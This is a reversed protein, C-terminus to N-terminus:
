LKILSDIYVDESSSATFKFQSMEVSSAGAPITQSAPTDSAVSISLAGSADVDDSTDDSSGGLQAADMLASEEGTVDSGADLGSLDISSGDLWFRDQFGNADSGASSVERKAGDWVLYLVGDMSVLAGDHADSADMLSAGVAYDVFFVDPVDDIMTNWNSGALGVAVEESEIWHLMGSPAVAYTKPDSQIKVWRSGPRYVINGALSINALESDSITKVDDFNEYWTFYSKENPFSYRQGDSGYYYVTTLTTGKIVDGASYSEARALPAVFTALGISWFITALAVVSTLIRKTASVETM